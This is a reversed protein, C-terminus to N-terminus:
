YRFKTEALSGLTFGYRLLGIMFVVIFDVKITVRLFFLFLILMCCEMLVGYGLGWLWPRRGFILAFIVGFTAGNWYHYSWGAIKAATTTVAQGTIWSGLMLIPVFGNYGFM